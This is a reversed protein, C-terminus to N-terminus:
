GLRRKLQKVARRLAIAPAIGYRLLEYKNRPKRVRPPSLAFVKAADRLPSAGPPTPRIGLKRLYHNAQYIKAQRDYQRLCFNISLSVSYSDGNQVWHPARMPHHVGTGPTLRYVKAKCQNEERYKAGNMYGVYYREIEQETLVSRDNPDFVSVDKQGHIQLLFNAEHDIHYPTLSGPSALFIYADIWTIERSLPVATLRELEEVCDGLLAGYQPDNQVSKLLVWSGSESIRAIAEEVPLLQRPLKRKWGQDIPLESSYFAIQKEGLAKALEVLRPLEFLPHAALNHSFGFSSRNFQESFLPVNNEFARARPEAKEEVTLPLPHPIVLSM